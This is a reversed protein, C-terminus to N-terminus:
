IEGQEAFVFSKRNFLAKNRIATEGCACSLYYDGNEYVHAWVPLGCDVCNEKRRYLPGLLHANSHQNEDLEHMKDVIASMLSRYRRAIKDINVGRTHAESLLPNLDFSLVARADNLKMWAIRRSVLDSNQKFWTNSHQEHTVDSESAPGTNTTKKATM